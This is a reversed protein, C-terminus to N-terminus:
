YRKLKILKNVVTRLTGLADFEDDDVFSTPPKRYIVYDLTPMGIQDILSRTKEVQIKLDKLKYYMEDLDKKELVLLNTEEAARASFTSPLSGLATYQGM